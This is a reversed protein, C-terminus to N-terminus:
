VNQKLKLITVALPPLTIVISHPQGRWDGDITAIEGDNTVDSGGFQSRDSNLVEVYAGSQPVGLRYGSRVVPTFNCAVVVDGDEGGRRLYALVSNASDHVELWEFGTWSMDEAFLASNKRYFHNLERVWDSVQAHPSGPYVLHWDLSFAETWERGQAFECGMFLLKKGPHTWMYGYLLRLNAFKQWGDGPMKDLMSKKLHVVEDHSFPLIFHESFAYLLSFTLTGHQYMRYIPDSSMYQLSDHMWGMNWKMDFGLGGGETSHTVGAFDTSEEAATFTGPFYKHVADNFNRLFHIAGINERGGYMNPVWQGDERSFDLYLMSAVADVRLGDIHYKDLWFLANSILFQRVENRDFNFVYTGWDPQEGQRPDAHEYLHTGDFYGLGHEDKPFHAPVWDIIVGIDNQHCKDVFAMFQEPKGFRSTPAFYGTVQYGWSGDFPYESVPMLEIHTFGMEKVYPILRESIEDYSLWENGDGRQWSGLHVEYVSIPASFSNHKAREALWKKDGWTYKDIDWVISATNPRVEAFFGVPDSKNVLYGDSKAKMEFKYHEGEGIAPVFLEWIGCGPHFRMPNRRGDWLNFNGVVSVRAANPAWVAFRTGAVGDIELLHAGLKSYAQVDTGEGLLYRDEDSLTSGFSYTDARQITVGTHYTIEVQYRLKTGGVKVEYLGDGHIRQMPFSGKKGNLRHLTISETGPEFIRVITSRKEIHPGLIAFPDAHYGGVIANIEYAPLTTNTSM